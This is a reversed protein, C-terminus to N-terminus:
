SAKVAKPANSVITIISAGVSLLETRGGGEM